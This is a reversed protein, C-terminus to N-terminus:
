WIGFHAFSLIIGSGLTRARLGLERSKIRAWGGIGGEGRGTRMISM